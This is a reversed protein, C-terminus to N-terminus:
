WEAPHGPRWGRSRLVQGIQRMVGDYGHKRVMDRNVKLSIWGSAASFNDRRADREQQEQSLHHAGDYQIGVRYRRWGLDPWARETGAEDYLIIGHEPEPLGVREAALRLRTEPPSASGTRVLELATRAVKLGRAGAHSQVTDRLQGLTGLPDSPPAFPRRHDSVIADGLIVADELSLQAALDLWTRSVTTLPIGQYVTMEADTLRLRHGVVGFRRIAAVGATALHVAPESSLRGPLPLNWIRAASGWCAVAGPTLALLPAVANRFDQSVGWPVRIGRSPTLVDRGRLRKPTEGAALAEALTFSRGQLPHALARPQRM